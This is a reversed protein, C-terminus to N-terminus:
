NIFNIKTGKHHQIKQLPQTNKCNFAEGQEENKSIDFKCISKVHDREIDVWTMDSTM